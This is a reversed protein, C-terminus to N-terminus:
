PPMQPFVFCLFTPLDPKLFSSCPQQWVWGMNSTMLCAGNAAMQADDAEVHDLSNGTTVVGLKYKLAQFGVSIFIFTRMLNENRKAIKILGSQRPAHNGHSGHSRLKSVERLHPTEVSTHNHVGYDVFIPLLMRRDHNHITSSVLVDGIAMGKSEFGGATGANILLDPKLSEVALYTALAAPV